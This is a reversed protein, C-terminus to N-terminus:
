PSEEAPRQAILAAEKQIAEELAIELDEEEQRTSVRSPVIAYIVPIVILTLLTAVVLGTSVVVALPTRLESGEGFGIAMPLLGLVTTLTTMVIPRLRIHCARSIAKIKEVGARRERNIADVLVIANNVVVGALFITGILAIISISQNGLVLGLIVGVLALPITFLIIFPHILNEFTAAMVLYVLFVALAMAFMLSNFSVQMERNQGGWEFSIGPPPPNQALVNEIDAMVSNLNRSGLDASIIASRSQKIRHIESPGRAADLSAVAKLTIPLGDRHAVVINEIDSISNRDVEQNRLRIDIQRDDEKFKSVVTGNVRNHLTESVQRINLGLRALQDRNFVVNLEPNGSELSSRLDLLGPIQALKPKLSMSHDKLLQLDESFFHLEIPTKLSFFSPRGVKADLNPIQAYAKRLHESSAMELAEDGRDKLIVNVQGLNEDKTKLSLGGSVTRSGVSSYVREVEPRELALSEMQSIVLDTSPLSTGEPLHVEFYFEGETLTPILERDLNPVLFLSSGFILFAIIATAWRFKLAGQLFWGYGRSFLGLSQPEKAGAKPPPVPAARRSGLSALMPILSLSVLLSAILSFTVTMSQDRFLEGAIGEVFIIPFFVAITTLVSATVAGGVERTGEIAARARSLGKERHRHIAELVVISGDVLMGIGLTLGGLSMINLSVDLQFMMAFTAVVSIPISTAIIFTTRSDRLFLFLILIALFGGILLADRVEKISGVIFRSQDFLVFLNVDKPLDQPLHKLVEKINQAVTVTNADGEKFLEM